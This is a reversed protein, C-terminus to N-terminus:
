WDFLHVAEWDVPNEQPEDCEETSNFCARGGGIDFHGEVAIGVIVRGTWSGGVRASPSVIHGTARSSVVIGKRKRTM